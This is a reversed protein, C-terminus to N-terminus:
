LIGRSDALQREMRAIETVLLDRGRQTIIYWKQRGEERTKEIFDSKELKPLLSYLTGPGIAVRGESIEDVRAMIDVGCREDILALLVYYMPETLTQFQERAM